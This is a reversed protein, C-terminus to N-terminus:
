GVRLLHIPEGYAVSRERAPQRAGCTAWNQGAVHEFLWKPFWPNMQRLRVVEAAAPRERDRRTVAFRDAGERHIETHRTLSPRVIERQGARHRLGGGDDNRPMGLRLFTRARLRRQALALVAVALQEFGDVLAEADDLHEEVVALLRDVVAEENGV